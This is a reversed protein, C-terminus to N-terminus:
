AHASFWEAIWRVLHGAIERKPQHDLPVVREASVLWVRNADSGFGVDPEGVLNAVILDCGKKELKARAYELVHETEAAYGILLPGGGRARRWDGLSALIDPTRVLAVSQQQGLGNKKAKQASFAAPRWDAVAASMVVADAGPLEAHVADHMQQASEVAVARVGEPVALAVPGHVLTVAAGAAQAAEALAFGTKGTSPNSLFRAPDLYERTPGASIVLRRGALLPEPAEVAAPEAQGAGAVSPNQAAHQALAAETAALIEEPDALRGPGVTGCALLGAGPEVIHWGFGRLTALNAQVAPHAYMSSNMAPAIVVPVNAALLVTSVVEDGLGHAAKGILNATAPAVVLADCSQAFEIHGIAHEESADLTRTLVPLHTLAQFTLPAIFQQANPTMAVQVVAGARQFSRVLEAAKYAAIGGSVCM